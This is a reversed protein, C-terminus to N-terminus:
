TSPSMQWAVPESQRAAARDEVTVDVALDAGFQAAVGIPRCRPGLGTVMVFRRRLTERGRRRVTGQIVQSRRAQPLLARVAQCIEAGQPAPWHALM